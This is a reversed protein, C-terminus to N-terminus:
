VPMESRPQIHMLLLLMLFDVSQYLAPGLQGMHFFIGSCNPSGFSCGIQNCTLFALALQNKHSRLNIPRGVGAWFSAFVWLVQAWRGSASLNNPIDGPAAGHALWHDCSEDEVQHQAHKGM